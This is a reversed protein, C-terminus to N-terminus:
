EHKSSLFEVGAESGRQWRKECKYSINRSTGIVKLTFRDPLSIEKELLLKAGSGSLDDLKCDVTKFMGVKIKGSRQAPSRKERRHSASKSSM